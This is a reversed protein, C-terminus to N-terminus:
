DRTMEALEVLVGFASEPHIFAIRKGGTGAVPEPNILRVGLRQLRQLTEDLDEVELCLHHMGPGRKHLFRAIGSDDTTPRVLEIETGGAPLFAVTAQQEPVEQVRELELGLADRWFTLAAQVDEVVLAIHDVRKVRVV